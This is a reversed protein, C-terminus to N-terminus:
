VDTIEKVIGDGNPYFLSLRNQTQGGDSLFRRRIRAM